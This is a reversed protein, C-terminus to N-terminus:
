IPCFGNQKLKVELCTNIKKELAQKFLEVKEDTVECGWMEGIVQCLYNPAGITAIEEEIPQICENVYTQLTGNYKADFVDKCPKTCGVLLLAILLKKM